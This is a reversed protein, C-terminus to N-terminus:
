RYIKLEVPRNSALGCVRVAVPEHGTRKVFLRTRSEVIVDVADGWAEPGCIVDARFVTGTGLATFGDDLLVVCAVLSVLHDATEETHALLFCDGQQAQDIDIATSRVRSKTKTTQM